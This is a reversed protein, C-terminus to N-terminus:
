FSALLAEKDLKKGIFIMKNEKVEEAGWEIDMPQGDFVMHVGQFVFKKPMGKIALVGKMRYINPGQDKLLASIWVNLKEMSLEGVERIGVSSTSTDHSHVKKKGDMKRSGDANLVSSMAVHPGTGMVMVMIMIVIVMSMIVVPIIM